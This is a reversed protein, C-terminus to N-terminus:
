QEVGSPLLEPSKEQVLSKGDRKGHRLSLVKEQDPVLNEM